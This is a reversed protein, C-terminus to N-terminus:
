TYGLARGGGGSARGATAAIPSRRRVIKAVRAADRAATAAPNIARKAVFQQYAQSGKSKFLAPVAAAGLGLAAGPLIGQEGGAAYGLGGGIAPAALYRAWGLGALKPLLAEPIEAERIAERLGIDYAIKLPEM